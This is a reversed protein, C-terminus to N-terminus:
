RFLSLNWQEYVTYKNRFYTFVLSKRRELLSYHKIEYVQLACSLCTQNQHTGFALDELKYVQPTCRPCTQRQFNFDGIKVPCEQSFTAEWGLFNKKIISAWQSNRVLGIDNVMRSLCDCLPKQSCLPEWLLMRVAM